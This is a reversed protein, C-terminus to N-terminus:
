KLPSTCLALLYNAMRFSGTHLVEDNMAFIFVNNFYKMLFDKLDEGTKCNVHGLKSAISAYEQSEISPMGFIAIANESVSNVINSIFISEKNQPIHELVDLAYVADFNESLPGGEIFDHLVPILNWEISSRNIVDQIFVPDFDSVTLQDIEQKVIRSGFADACGVELVNKKGALMKAVFKYRSLTFVLRKPDQNWSENTMLGLTSRGFKKEVDFLVNYQPEKTSELDSGRM